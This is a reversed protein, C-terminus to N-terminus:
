SARDGVRVLELPRTATPSASSRGATSRWAQPPVGHHSTFARSFAASSGYGVAHAVQEVPADGSRLLRRAEQMRADRLVEAPSLRLERRFRDGLASRSLHVLGAMRDVNWPEGPRATVAAVVAAVAADPAPEDRTPLGQDELWSETMAAGVLNAYSSAMLPPGCQTVTPCSRVLATIGDHRTAFDTVVLVGPLPHTPVGVALDTVHLETDSCAVLTFAQRASVLVADGPLLPHAAGAHLVAAGEVVLLWHPGRTVDYTAGAALSALRSTTM